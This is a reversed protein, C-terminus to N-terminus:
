RVIIVNSGITVNPMIVSEMGIHVNNGIQVKGFKDIDALQKDLHRLVWVGGDHTTISVGNSFRVNDGITILYPESGFDVNGIIQCNKGITCGRKRLYNIKHRPSLAAWLISRVSM